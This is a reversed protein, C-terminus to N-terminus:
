FVIVMEDEKEGVNTPSLQKSVESFCSLKRDGSSQKVRRLNYTCEGVKVRETNGVSVYLWFVDEQVSLAMHDDSVKSEGLLHRVSCPGQAARWLVQCRLDDLGLAVVLGHVPPCKADKDILHKSSIRREKILIM